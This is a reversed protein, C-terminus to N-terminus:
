GATTASPRPLRLFTPKTLPCGPTHGSARQDWFSVLQRSDDINTRTAYYGREFKAPDILMEHKAPHGAM